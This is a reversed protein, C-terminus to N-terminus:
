KLHDINGIFEIHYTNDRNIEIISLATKEQKLQEFEFRPLKTIYFLLEMIAAGHSVVLITKDYHKEAIRKLFSIVRQQVEMCSEGGLPKYIHFETNSKEVAKLFDEISMGQFVAFNRERLDKDLNIKLNHYKNIIKATEEARRLDSSYIADINFEKLRLAIKEAQSFGDQSLSDNITGLLIGRKNGTAEGHRILLLKM